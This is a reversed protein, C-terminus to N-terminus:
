ANGNQPVFAPVDEFQAQQEADNRVVQHLADLAVGGAAFDHEGTKEAARLHEGIMMHLRFMELLGLCRQNSQIRHMQGVPGDM